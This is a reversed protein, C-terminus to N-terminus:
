TNFYKTTLRGNRAIDNNTLSARLMMRSVIYANPFVM